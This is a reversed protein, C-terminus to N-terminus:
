SLSRMLSVLPLLLSKGAHNTPKMQKVIGECKSPNQTYDTCTLDLAEGAISRILMKFFKITENTCIEPEKKVASLICTEFRNYSCCAGAMRDDESLSMSNKSDQVTFYLLFFLSLFVIKVEDDIQMGYADMCAHHINLVKNGCASHQFVSNDVGKQGCFTKFIKGAGKLM